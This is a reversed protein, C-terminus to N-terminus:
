VWNKYAGRQTLECFVVAIEKSAWSKKSLILSIKYKRTLFEVVWKIRDLPYQAAM